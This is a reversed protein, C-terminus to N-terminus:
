AQAVYTKVGARSVRVGFGKLVSDWTFAQAQEPIPLGAVVTKTLKIRAM